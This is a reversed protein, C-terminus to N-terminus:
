QAAPSPAPETAPAVPSPVPEVPTTAPESPATASEPAAAAANRVINVRTTTGRLAQSHEESTATEPNVKNEDTGKPLLYMDGVVKVLFTDPVQGAFPKLLDVKISVGNRMAKQGLVTSFSGAQKDDALIRVRLVAPTDMFNRGCEIEYQTWLSEPVPPTITVTTGLRKKRKDLDEKIVVNEAKSEATIFGSIFVQAEVDGIDAGYQQNGTFSTAHSEKHLENPQGSGPDYPSWPKQPKCSVAMVLVTAGILTWKM